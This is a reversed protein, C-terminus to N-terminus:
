NIRLGYCRRRGSQRVLRTASPASYNSQSKMLYAVRTDSPDLRSLLWKGCGMM